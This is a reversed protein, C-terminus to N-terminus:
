THHTHDDDFGVSGGGGGGVGGGGMRESGGGGAADKGSGEGKGRAASSRSPGQRPIALGDPIADPDLVQRIFVRVSVVLEAMHTPRSAALGAAAAALRVQEDTGLLIIDSLAAEVTDRVRRSRDTSPWPDSSSVNAVADIGDPAREM